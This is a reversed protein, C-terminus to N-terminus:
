LKGVVHYLYYIIYEYITINSKVMGVVGIDLRSRLGNEAPIWVACCCQPNLGDFRHNKECRFYMKWPGVSITKWYKLFPYRPSM